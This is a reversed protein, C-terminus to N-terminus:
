ARDVKFCPKSLLGPTHHVQFEALCWLVKFCVDLVELHSPRIGPKQSIKCTDDLDESIMSCVAFAIGLLAHSAPQIWFLISYSTLPPSSFRHCWHTHLKYLTQVVGPDQRGRVMINIIDTWTFCQTQNVFPLSNENFRLRTSRGRGRALVPQLGSAGSICQDSRYWSSFYNELVPPPHHFCLCLRDAVVCFLHCCLHCPELPCLCWSAAARFDRSWLPSLPASRSFSFAKHSPLQVEYSCTHELTGARKGFIWRLFFVMSAIKWERHDTRQRTDTTPLPITSPSHPGHLSRITCVTYTPFSLPFSHQSSPSASTVAWGANFAASATNMCFHIM